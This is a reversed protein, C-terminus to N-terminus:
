KNLKTICYTSILYATKLDKVNLQILDQINYELVEIDESESELGGGKSIRKGVGLFCFVRETTGGPSTYLYGLDVISECEFGVEEMSERKFCEEPDEGKELTGAVAEVLYRDEPLAGIRYQSVLYFVEKDEDYLLGSVVDDSKNGTSRSMVERKISIGNKNTDEVSHVKLFGEYVLTKKM